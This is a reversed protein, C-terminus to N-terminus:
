GLKQDNGQPMSINLPEHYVQWIAKWFHKVLNYNWQSSYKEGCEPQHSNHPKSDENIEKIENNLSVIRQDLINNFIEIM